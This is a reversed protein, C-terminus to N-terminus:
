ERTAPHIRERRVTNDVDIVLIHWGQSPEDGVAALNLRAPAHAGAGLVLARQSNGDLPRAVKSQKWEGFADTISTLTTSATAWTIPSWSWAPEVAARALTTKVPITSRAFAPEVTARASEILIPWARFCWRLVGFRVVIIVLSKKVSVSRRAPM